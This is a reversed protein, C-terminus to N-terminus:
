IDTHLRRYSLSWAINPLKHLITLLNKPEIRQGHVWHLRFAAKKSFGFTDMQLEALDNMMMNGFTQDLGPPLCKLVSRDWHSGIRVPTFLVCNLCGYRWGRGEGNLRLLSYAHLQSWDHCSDLKFSVSSTLRKLYITATKGCCLWFKWDHIPIM